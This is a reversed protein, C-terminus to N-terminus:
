LQSLFTLKKSVMNTLLYHAKSQAGDIWECIPHVNVGKIEMFQSKIKDLNNVIQAVYQEYIGGTYLIAEVSSFDNRKEVPIHRFCEQILPTFNGRKFDQSWDGLDDGLQLYYVLDTLLNVINDNPSKGAFFCLIEYFQITSNSRGAIMQYNEDKSPQYFGTRQKIEQRIALANEFIRRAMRRISEAKSQESANINFSLFMQSYAMFLLHTSYLVDDEQILHHDIVDDLLLYHSSLLIYPMRLKDLIPDGLELGALAGLIDIHDYGLLSESGKQCLAKLREVDEQPFFSGVYSEFEQLQTDLSKSM